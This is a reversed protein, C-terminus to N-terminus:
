PTGTITSDTILWGGLFVTPSTYLWTLFSKSSDRSSITSVPMPGVLAVGSAAVANSALTDKYACSQSAALCYAPSTIEEPEHVSAVPSMYRFMQVEASSLLSTINLSVM